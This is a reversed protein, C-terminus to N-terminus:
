RSDSQRASLAQEFTGLLSTVRRTTSSATRQVICASGLDELLRNAAEGLSYLRLGALEPPIATRVRHWIGADITGELVSRPVDTFRCPVLRLGSVDPFEARTLETHDYSDADIGVRAQDTRHVAEISRVVVVSSPDYYPVDLLRSELSSDGNCVDRASGASMISIDCEAAATMAARRRAGPIYRLDVSLGLERLRRTLWDIIAEAEESGPIPAAVSLPGLGAVRWLVGLDVARIVRGQRGRGTLVVGGIDELVRMAKVVTGAGVGLEAQYVAIPKTRTGLPASSLDRAIALLARHSPTSYPDHRGDIRSTPLPRGSM